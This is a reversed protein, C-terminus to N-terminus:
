AIGKQLQEGLVRGFITALKNEDIQVVVPKEPDVRGARFPTFVEPRNLEVVKYSYGAMVAGGTARKPPTSTSPRPISNLRSALSIAFNLGPILSGIVHILEGALAINHALWNSLESLAWTAGQIATSLLGAGWTMAVLLANLVTLPSLLAMSVFQWKSSEATTIGLADTLEHFRNALVDVKEMLKGANEITTTFAKLGHTDWWANISQFSPLLKDVVSMELGLVALKVEELLRQFQEYKAPDIALGLAKVKETAQDLGGEQALTDFVDILGAGSRGFIETLFNVREQQTAFSNYKNSIEELLSAQDKVAGNAGLANIGFEALKKGTEDLEGNANVLGKELITMGSTFKQIDVGSKHLIFNLTAAEDNTGGMIDQISDMEGAWEFTADVAAKVAMTVGAVAASLAGAAITALNFGKIFNEKKVELEAVLKGIVYNM